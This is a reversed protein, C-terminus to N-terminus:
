GLKLQKNARSQGRLGAWRTCFRARLGAPNHLEFRAECRLRASNVRSSGDRAGAFRKGGRGIRGRTRSFDEMNGEGAHGLRREMRGLDRRRDRGGREERGRLREGEAAASSSPAGGEQARRLFGCRPWPPRTGLPGLLLQRAPRSHGERRCCSTSLTWM